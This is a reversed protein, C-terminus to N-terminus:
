GLRQVVQADEGTGAPTRGSAELQKPQQQTGWQALATVQSEDEGELVKREQAAAKRGKTEAEKAGVEATGTFGTQVPDTHQDKCVSGADEDKRQEAM